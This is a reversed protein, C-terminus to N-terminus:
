GTQEMKGLQPATVKKQPLPGERTRADRSARTGNWRTGM